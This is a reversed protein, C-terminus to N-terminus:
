KSTIVGDFGLKKLKKLENEAINRTAFSGIRVRTVEANGTKLTETYAKFGNFILNEVQQKAKLQDSFAGLQIVFGKSVDATATTDAGTATSTSATNVAVPTSKTEALHRNDIKPKIGPIPTRKRVGLLETTEEIDSQNVKSKDQLESSSGFESTEHGTLEEKPPLVANTRANKSPTPLNIAIEHQENELKPEDFIIPLVIVSFIVLVIAGVLRRRARKRLLLEEESINKTM